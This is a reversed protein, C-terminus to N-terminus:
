LRVVEAKTRDAVQHLIRRTVFPLSCHTCPPLTLKPSRVMWRGIRRHAYTDGAPISTRPYPHILLKAYTGSVKRKSMRGPNVYLVGNVM